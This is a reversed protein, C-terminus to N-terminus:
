EVVIVKYAYKAPVAFSTYFKDDDSKLSANYLGYYKRGEFTYYVYDVGAKPANNVVAPVAAAVFVRVAYTGAAPVFSVAQNAKFEVTGYTGAAVNSATVPAGVAKIGDVLEQETVGAAVSFIDTKSASAAPNLDAGSVPDSVSVYITSDAQYKIGAEVVSGNQYTTISPSTVITTTGQVGDETEAVVADFTIPYLGEPDPDPDDPDGTTGNTNNSIKFLYTYAYNSKWVMYEAPVTAKAKHVTITEYNGDEDADLSTLVYDVLLKMPEINTVKPLVTNYGGGAWSPATSSEGMPADDSIELAGFDKYSAETGTAAIDATATGDAAYTVKFSTSGGTIQNFSGDLIANTTSNNAGNAYYFTMSTVQYGPINEYFGLRVKTGLSKFRLTVIGGYQNTVTKDSNTSHNVIVKDAYYFKAADELTSLSVTLGDNDVAVTAKASNDRWAQFEYKDTGYDWYKITQAGKVYEWDSSNSETTNKTGEAYDVSYKPFVVVPADTGTTKTGYVTFNNELVEAAEKGTKDARTVAPTASGFAIAMEGDAAAKNGVFEDDSCSALAIGAAAAFYLYNKM